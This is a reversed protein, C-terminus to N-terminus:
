GCPRGRPSTRWRGWTGGASPDTRTLPTVFLGLWPALLSAGAASGLGVTLLSLLRRRERCPGCGREPEGPADELPSSGEPDAPYPTPDLDDSSTM